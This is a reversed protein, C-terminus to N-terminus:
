EERTEPGSLVGISLVGGRYNHYIDTYTCSPSLETKSGSPVFAYAICCRNKGETRRPSNGTRSDVSGSIANHQYVIM